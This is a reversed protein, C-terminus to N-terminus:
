TGRHDKFENADRSNRAFNDSVRGPLLESGILFMHGLHHNVFIEVTSLTKLGAPLQAKGRNFDPWYNPCTRQKSAVIRM